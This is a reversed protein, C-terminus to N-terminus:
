RARLVPLRLTVHTESRAVITAGVREYFALGRRNNVSASWGLHSCDRGEAIAALAALVRAGVGGSRAEADVYLDDLWLSPQGLFSSYRFYYLAFGCPRGGRTAILAHAYAPDGFLTATIRAPTTALTGTFGGIARDFDAKKGLYAHILPVDDPTAARVEPEIAEDSM